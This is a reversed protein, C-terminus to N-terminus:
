ALSSSDRNEVCGGKAIGGHVAQNKKGWVEAKSRTLSQKSFAHSTGEPVVFFLHWPKCEHPRLPSALYKLKMWQQIHIYAETKEPHTLAEPKM